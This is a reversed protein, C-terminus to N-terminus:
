TGYTRGDGLEPCGPKLRVAKVNWRVNLTGFPVEHDSEDPIVRVYQLCANM